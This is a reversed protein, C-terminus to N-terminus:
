ISRTLLGRRFIREKVCRCFLYVRRLVAFRIIFLLKIIGILFDKKSLHVYRVFFDNVKFVGYEGTDEHRFLYFRLKAAFVNIEKPCFNEIFYAKALAYHLSIKCGESAISISGSHSRFYALPKALYICKEYKFATLLFLLFDNGIAHMSFDSGIGNPIQLLLNKRVDSMRFLACGPSFPVGGLYIARRLYEESSMEVTKEMFRIRRGLARDSKEFAIVDTFVFAVNDKLLPLTQELFNNSILDDSWLIKGYAGSAEQVCRLWNRVPGINEENRFFKIREDLVALRRIVDYTGDTSANDVIIIEINTYTQRMASEVTEAIIMERNYVPILISILPHSM